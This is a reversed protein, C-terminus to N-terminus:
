GREHWRSASHLLFPIPPVVRHSSSSKPCKACVSPANLVLPDCWYCRLPSTQQRPILSFVISSSELVVAWRHLQTSIWAEFEIKWFRVLAIRFPSFRTLWGHIDHLHHNPFSLCSSDFNLPRLKVVHPGHCGKVDYVWSSVRTYSIFEFGNSMLLRKYTVCIGLGRTSVSGPTDEM